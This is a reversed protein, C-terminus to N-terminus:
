PVKYCPRFARRPWEAPGQRDIRRTRLMGAQHINLREDLVYAPRADAPARHKVTAAAVDGDDDGLDRVFDGDLAVYAADEGGHAALLLVVLAPADAIRRVERGVFLGAGVHAEDADGIRGRAGAAAGVG